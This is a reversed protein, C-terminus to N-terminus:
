AAAEPRPAAPAAALTFRRSFLTEPTLATWLAFAIVGAAGWYPVTACCLLGSAGLAVIWDAPHTRRTLMLAAAPALLAADYHMAYPTIFLSGGLLAAIRRAPDESKRFVSWVMAIAGAAFALRWTALGAPDLKLTMGLATPTIMGRQLGPSTMVMHEFKPMAAIWSTWAGVGFALASVAAAVVVTAGAAGLTRWQRLALMAVPLLVLAQPKMAGAVGFLVGAIIPRKGMIYLGSIALAAIFFTIQGAVMVLVSAPTLVMALLALTRPAGLKGAMVALIATAGAFIWIADATQFPLLGLPAFVLLTPPPYVFPRLGRFHAQLPHEFHSLGVFDYVRHPHLGVEHGAAWMPLFDIGLPQYALLKTTDKWDLAALAVLGAGLLLVRLWLWARAWSM